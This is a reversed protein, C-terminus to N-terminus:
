FNKPCKLYWKVDCINGSDNVYTGILLIFGIKFLIFFLFLIYLYTLRILDIFPSDNGIAEKSIIM